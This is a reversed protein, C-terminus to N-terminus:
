VSEALTKRVELQVRLLNLPLAEPPFVVGSDAVPLKGAVRLVM